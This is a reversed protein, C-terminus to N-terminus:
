LMMMMTHLSELDVRLAQLEMRLVRSQEIPDRLFRTTNMCVLSPELGLAEDDLRVVMTEEAAETRETGSTATTTTRSPDVLSRSSLATCSTTGTTMTTEATTIATSINTSAAETTATTTPGMQREYARIQHMLYLLRKERIELCTTVTRTRDLFILHSQTQRQGQQQSRSSCPSPSPSPSPSPPPLSPYLESLTWQTRFATFFHVGCLFLSPGLIATNSHSSPTPKTTSLQTFLQHIINTCPLRDKFLGALMGTGLLLSVVINVKLTRFAPQRARIRDTTEKVSREQALRLQRCAKMWLEVHDHLLAQNQLPPLSSPRPQCRSSAVAAVANRPTRDRSSHDPSTNQQQQPQPQPQLQPQQQQKDIEIANAHREGSTAGTGEAIKVTSSSLLLSRSRPAEHEHQEQELQYRRHRPSPRNSRRKKKKESGACTKSGFDDDKSRNGNSDSHFDLTTDLLDILESFLAKGSLSHFLLDLECRESLEAHYQREREAQLLNRHCLYLHSATALGLGLPITAM